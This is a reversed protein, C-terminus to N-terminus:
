WEVRIPPSLRSAYKKFNLLIADKSINYLFDESTEGIRLAGMREHYHWVKENGKRVDFHSAQFGLEMGLHYVMLTSEVASSTPADKSLIWSGWSFSCQKQDYLRVLGVAQGQHEIVFYIQNDPINTIWHRQAAIDENTASLFRGKDADLRLSLVFEADSSVANRFKLRPGIVYKPSTLRPQDGTATTPSAFDNSM